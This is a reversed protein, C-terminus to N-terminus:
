YNSDEQMVKRLLKALNCKFLVNNGLFLGNAAIAKPDALVVAENSTPLDDFEHLLIFRVINRRLNILLQSDTAQYHPMYM